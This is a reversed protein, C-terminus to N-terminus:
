SSDPLMVFDYGCHKAPRRTYNTYFQNRADFHSTSIRYSLDSNPHGGFAREERKSILSL